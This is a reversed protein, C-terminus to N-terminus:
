SRSRHGAVREDSGGRLEPTLMFGARRYGAGEAAGLYERFGGGWTGVRTEM